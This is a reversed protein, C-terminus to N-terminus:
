FFSPETGFQNIYTEVWEEDLSYTAPLIPQKTIETLTHDDSSKVASVGNIIESEVSENIKM